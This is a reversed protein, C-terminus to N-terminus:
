GRTLFRSSNNQCLTNPARWWPTINHVGDSALTVSASWANNAAGTTAIQSGNDFLAITTNPALNDADSVTGTISQTPQNTLGGVTTIAISPASRDLTFSVSATGTGTSNSESAVLTHSGDTLGFPSFRWVGSANATTTGLTVGGESITVTANADGGGAIAPNSTIGDTASIGSDSVLAATVNPAPISVLTFVVGASTATNGAADTLQATILNDGSVPLTVSASWAGGSVVTKSVGKGNDFIAVVQIGPTSDSVMGAITQVPQTTIGGTSTIAIAAADTTLVNM